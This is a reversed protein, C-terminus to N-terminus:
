GVTFNAVLREDRSSAALVVGVRGRAVTWGVGPWWTSLDRRSLVFVVTETKAPALVRTKVFGRLVLEPEGAEAPFRLYLQVVDAGPVGGTNTVSVSLNLAPATLAAASASLPIGSPAHALAPPQEWAYVFSTYSLGHGFAFRVPRGHLARWGVHLGETYECRLERCPAVTDTEDVPITVPLRASPNVAGTLVDAIAGGTAEGGLFVILAADANPSWDATIAGPAMAAVLLPPLVGAARRDATASVLSTLFSDQDLRLHPRDWSEQAIAGGCAIALTAGSMMEAAQVPDDGDYFSVTVGGAALGAKVSASTNFLVRGSGGVVYYDGAAWYSRRSAVAYAAPADCASGLLAVHAGHRLPLPRAAGPRPPENKLLVVSAAAIGRAADRHAASTAVASMMVPGCDCGVHCGLGDYAGVRMAGRVVRFAMRGVLGYPLGAEGMAAPAAPPAPAAAPLGGTEDIPTDGAAQELGALAERSFYGDNGPMNQDVGEAAAETEHVAWWDSMVWGEFGMRGRLDRLLLGRAGCAHSGNIKNYSCMVSAVGAEVAAAFPPYYVEWLAREDVYVDTSDRDTEQQNLAFHKAVAVVGTSQVGGVLASAMAAGLGPEEGSLYEANRGGRPVRHVNLSPGLLVTAGKSRFEAGIYRGYAASLSVDWTSALALLSPWATVTGVQPEFMTRYGQSADQMHLGPLELRPVGLVNGGYWGPGVDYGQWGVGQVLRLAEELTMEIVLAAAAASADAGWRTWWARGAPGAAGSVRESLRRRVDQGASPGHTAEMLSAAGFEACYGPPVGPGASPYPLLSGLTRISLIIRRQAPSPVGLCAGASLPPVAAVLLWALWACRAAPPATPSLRALTLEAARDARAIRTPRTPGCRNVAAVAGTFISVLILVFYVQQSRLLTAPRGLYAFPYSLCVGVCAGWAAGVLGICLRILFLRVASVAIHRPSKPGRLLRVGDGSSASAASRFRTDRSPGRKFLDAASDATTLEIEAPQIENTEIHHHM